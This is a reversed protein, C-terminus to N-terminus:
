VLANKHFAKFVKNGISADPYASLTVNLGIAEGNRYVIEGRETVEASPVFYRIEEDGDIVDIVFSKRGLGAGGFTYETDGAKIPEGFYLALTAASIEIMSFSLTNDVTDATKRVTASNQWAKIETTSTQSASITVGDESIYGLDAWVAADLATDADTPAAAGVEGVYVAGTVAVRVNGSTLNLRAAGVAPAATNRASPKPTTEEDAM